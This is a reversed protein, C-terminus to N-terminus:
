TRHVIDTSNQRVRCIVVNKFEVASTDYNTVTQSIWLLALSGDFCGGSEELGINGNKSDTQSHLDESQCRATVSVLEFKSVSCDVMGAKIQLSSSAVNGSLVVSVGDDGTRDIVGLEFNPEEVGIVLRNFSDLVFALFNYTYLPVRLARRSGVVSFE